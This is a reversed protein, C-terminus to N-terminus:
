TSYGVVIYRKTTRIDISCSYRAPGAGTEEPEDETRPLIM